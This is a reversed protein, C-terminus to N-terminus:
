THMGCWKSVLCPHFHVQPTSTSNLMFPWASNLYGNFCFLFAGRGKIMIALGVLSVISLPDQPSQCLNFVLILAWKRGKTTGFFFAWANKMKNDDDVRSPARNETSVEVTKVGDYM